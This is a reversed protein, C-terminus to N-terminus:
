FRGSRKRGTYKSDRKVEKGQKVRRAKKRQIWEKKGEKQSGKRDRKKNKGYWNREENGDNGVVEIENRRAKLMEKRERKREVEAQGAFLCLYYKKAKASEPYDVVVGGTFGCSLAATSILEMQDPSEPYLQLVARSGTKLCKYLSSFFSELRKKANHEKVNEYCLWQVASISIAGDFQSRKYPLGHGFDFQLFDATSTNESETIKNEAAIQLMHASIDSGIFFHGHQSLIEGSMGTGCGLDLLLKPGDSSLNLLELARESIQSQIQLMRSSRAYKQSEKKNYFDQASGTHEPRSM